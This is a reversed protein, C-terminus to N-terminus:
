WKEPMDPVGLSVLQLRLAEDREFEGKIAGVAVVLHDFTEVTNLLFAIQEGDLFQTLIDDDAAVWRLILAKLDAITYAGRAVGRVRLTRWPNYVQSALLAWFTRRPIKQGPVPEIGWQTGDSLYFTEGKWAEHLFGLWTGKTTDPIENVTGIVSYREDGSTQIAAM